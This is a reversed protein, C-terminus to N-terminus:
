ATAAEYQQEPLLAELEAIRASQAEIAARDLLLRAHERLEAHHAILARIEAPTPCFLANM